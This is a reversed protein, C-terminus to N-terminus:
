INCGLALMFNKYVEGIREIVEYEVEDTIRLKLVIGEKGFMVSANNNEPDLDLVMILKKNESDYVFEREYVDISYGLLRKFYFFLNELEKKSHDLGKKDVMSVYEQYTKTIMDKEKPHKSDIIKEGNFFFYGGLM